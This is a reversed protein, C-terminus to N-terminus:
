KWDSCDWDLLKELEKIENRFLDKLHALEEDAIANPYQGIRQKTSDFKHSTTVGLHHYINKVKDYTKRLDDHRAIYVNDKGFYHWLRKVQKCYM